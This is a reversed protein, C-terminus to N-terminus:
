KTLLNVAEAYRERTGQVIDEDIVWGQGEKGLPGSELGKKFGSRVLWDRLYQKDFSPQAGGVKYGDVPWYRSSDPTLLEDILILQKKDSGDSSPILGFEFKTDALIVGRARAHQSATTYLKLAATSIQDYLEQGVIKAAQEPSINEDHAGQEAKTSPTFIPQPLQQGELLGEPMPISHVTGSKKYESWASGAMYGRVIAELPVVEAKKVLMARGELQDKYKHIEAPMEDVNATVFHNPIIDGLKQFWFLSIQTLLKGKDPIGNKLIVDYASIRDSAVFLLHDPSSTSYIDRVKGKSILKLDPLDSDILAAM